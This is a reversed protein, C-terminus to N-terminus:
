AEAAPAQPSPSLQGMEARDYADCAVEIDDALYAAEALSVANFLNAAAEVRRIVDADKKGDVYLQEFGAEYLWAKLTKIDM